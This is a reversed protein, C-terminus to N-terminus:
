TCKPSPSAAHTNRFEDDRAFSDDVAISSFSINMKPFIILFPRFLSLRSLRPFAFFVFFSFEKYNISFASPLFVTPYVFSPSLTSLSMPHINIILEWLYSTSIKSSFSSPRAFKYLVYVSAYHSSARTLASFQPPPYQVPNHPHLPNVRSSFIIFSVDFIVNFSTTLVINGATLSYVFLLFIYPETDSSRLFSHIKCITIPSKRWQPSITWDNM